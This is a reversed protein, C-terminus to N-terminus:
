RGEYADRLTQQDTPSLSRMIEEGRQQYSRETDKREWECLGALKKQEPTLLVKAQEFPGDEGYSWDCSKPKYEDYSNLSSGNKLVQDLEGCGEERKAPDNIKEITPNLVKIAASRAIRATCDPASAIPAPAPKSCGSVLVTACLVGLGIRM